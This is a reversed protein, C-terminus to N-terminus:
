RGSVAGRFIEVVRSRDGDGLNSGSPLCLGLDFFRSSVAGGVMEFEEYYPQLHMPKWVPRAEIDHRELEQRISERDVGVMSPDITLATLWFTSRCKPAEPMFDIGPIDGLSERYFRNHDRRRDVRRQLDDLQARGLAALLNSLRYNYGLETHQYHPAPDRAQTALHRARSAWEASDTVLAGGGSTTIIKNGNFSLIAIAGFV